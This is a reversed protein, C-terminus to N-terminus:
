ELKFSSLIKGATTLGGVQPNVLWPDFISSFFFQM